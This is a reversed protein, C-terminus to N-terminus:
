VGFYAEAEAEVVYRMNEISKEKVLPTEEEYHEHEDFKELGEAKEREMEEMVKQKQDTWGLGELFKKQEEKWNGKQM